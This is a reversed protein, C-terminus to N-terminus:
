DEKLALSQKENIVEVVNCISLIHSQMIEIQNAYQPYELMGEKCMPVMYKKTEEIYELIEKREIGALFTCTHVRNSLKELLARPNKEIAQYYTELTQNKNSVIKVAEIVEQSIGYDSIVEQWKGGLNCRQPIEHLLATAYTIDDNIGLATLYSCVRLPHIIFPDGSTRMQGNHFKQAIFLAKYTNPMENRSFGEIFHVIKKYQEGEDMIVDQMGILSAISECISVILNKMITITNSFEPYKLRGESCLPYIYKQTELIYKRMREEKFVQMTSCNNARDAIKILTAKWDHSINIFYEEPNYVKDWPFKKKKPPKSLIKVVEVVERDLLYDRILERGNQSVNCDEIVDHLIAAAFMVDCEHQIKYIEKNYWEQLVKEINLLILTKCVMLPHIIYPEGGDRCQGFHYKVALTLAILTNRMKYKTAYGKIFNYEKEWRQLSNREM